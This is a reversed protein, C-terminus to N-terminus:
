PPFSDPIEGSTTNRLHDIMKTYDNDIYDGSFKFVARFLNQLPPNWDDTIIDCYYSIKDEDQSISDFIRLIKDFFTQIDKTTTDQSSFPKIPRFLSDLERRGSDDYIKSHIAEFASAINQGCTPDYNILAKEVSQRYGFGDVEFSMPASSAVAGVTLEPYKQRFWAALSGGFGGGFIIWKSNSLDFKSNAANIFNAVDALAQDVSLYKLDELSLDSTPWMTRDDDFFRHLLAFVRAGFNEAWELLTSNTIQQELSTSTDDRGGLILFTPGNPESINSNEWFKQSWRRGDTKNFNDLPQTIRHELVGADGPSSEEITSIGSFMKTNNVNRRKQWGGIWKKINESILLRLNKLSESDEARPSEMDSCHSGGEILYPIVSPEDSVELALASWPDVSGRSAIVNTGTYNGRGGYQARTKAVGNKVFDINYEDGFVDTCIDIYFSFYKFKQFHPLHLFLSKPFKAGLSVAEPMRPPTSVSNMAPRGCGHVCPVKSHIRTAPIKFSNLWIQILQAKAALM